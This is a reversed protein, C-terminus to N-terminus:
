RAPTNERRLRRTLHCHSRDIALSRSVLKDAGGLGLFIYLSLIGVHVNLWQLALIDGQTAWEGAEEFLLRVPQLPKQKNGAPAAKTSNAKKKKWPSSGGGSASPTEDSRVKLLMVTRGWSYALVPRTGEATAGKQTQRPKSANVGVLGLSDMGEPPPTSVSPFWALSGRWTSLSSDGEQGGRHRRYWTRPSPKLGVIVLKIPTLIAILNLSDTPHASSAIPLPSLALVTSTKRNRRTRSPGPSSSRSSPTVYSPHPPPIPTPHSPQTPPSPRQPPTASPDDDPYKGLIRLVDSAEVFLVKGLSHYFALGADDASVIATHRVGVFGLQIIKSGFLHGEKKGSAVSVLDTPLVTRAPTQPNALDYLYIHGRLHGVAM